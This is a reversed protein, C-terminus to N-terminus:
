EPLATIKKFTGTETIAPLSGIGHNMKASKGTSLRWLQILAGVDYGADHRGSSFSQVEKRLAEYRLVTQYIMENPQQFTRIFREELEEVRFPMPQGVATFM